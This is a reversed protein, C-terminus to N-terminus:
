AQEYVRTIEDRMPRLLPQKQENHLQWVRGSGKEVYGIQTCTIGELELARIINNADPMKVTLLLAGSALTALPDLNFVDCVLRSLAPVLVAGPDLVLDCASAEAVEWLASALGGETPDHMTTVRGASLAVRADKVVSIGPKHLYQAAQELATKDLHPLLRQPFERALLATAEVPIGKTLLVADGPEAGRPTVLSDRAVEGILTGMIIPRDIGYTVESHGGILAVNLARCASALQDTIKLVLTEDTKNEPLLLTATYWLPTAGTTAVDNAAVQLAYWGIEDTAFTIPDSKVVTLNPSGTDLVACDMGIGPGILVRRDKVSYREFMTKLLEPPLKGLPFMESSM